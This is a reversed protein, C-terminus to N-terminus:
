PHGAVIAFPGGRDRVFVDWTENTDGPVLNSASSSFTVFRGLPSIAPYDCNGNAHMGNTGISALQTTNNLIDRVYVDGFYSTGPVFNTASSQFAVFRGNTSISAVDGEHGNSHNGNPGVSVLETTGNLRDHVFIDEIGNTDGPVLNDALSWFVVFRGNGSIALAESYANAQTRDSGISVRETTGRVRDRVFVDSIGNTDEPVLGANSRFAVFRGNASIKAGAGDHEGLHNSAVSVLETTGARRDRVYVNGFGTTGPVLNTAESSFAVFRGDASITPEASGGNAQVGGPGVSVRSISGARRDRVFIDWTGNTDGPVLTSASSQFAVVNGGASIVANESTNDSQAGSGAVSIREIVGTLRDRVFVDTVGNTDGPVLNSADSAFAVFRGGASIASQFSASNAQVGNPRVSVRQTTGGALAPVAMGMALLLNSALVIILRRHM